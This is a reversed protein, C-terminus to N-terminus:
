GRRRGAAVCAMAAVTALLIAAPEPVPAGTATSGTFGQQWLLLDAADTTGSADADGGDDVGYSSQWMALDAGDVDGDGDFDAPLAVSVLGEVVINDFVYAEGGDGTASFRLTLVDGLGTLLATLTQFVNSLEVADGDAPTMSLPDALTRPNGDALFYTATASEDVSSTFLPQEGADDFEYTWNFADPTVGGAEFDGMAAMDISVQLGSAGSVDFQWTASAEGTPNNDNKLNLVGFWADSKTTVDVIGLSDPENLSNDRLHSPIPAGSGVQFVGYGENVNDYAGSDAAPSQSFSILNQPADFDDGAVQTFVATGGGVSWNVPLTWLANAAGQSASSVTVLGSKFGATSTDLFVQHANAGGLAFATDMLGGGTLAGSVTITYDLEDAGNSVLVDAINQVMVDLAIPAGVSIMSPVSGLTVDMVAPLQYDAVVPLHDSVTMLANLVAPSAGGSSTIPSNCCAHSGDNGFARYSGPIYDLGEGDLFEGTVLQFDFRDDMGGLTQGSYQSSTAPSQTHTYRLSSNDHWSGPANIPDFAQGPGASLLHQYMDESSTQINYDGAYIAHTGEGLADSNTRVNTAEILRRAANESGTDSKYHDNYVYFDAAADYGVPRLQYRMTSRAQASGNVSGSRQEGLLEVTQTNYVLAPGGGAGEPHSTAANLSSRAYVGAGYIGNLVDVVSQTSISTTYQEQLMLVDIPKAIGGVVEAGIASLVLDMGSRATQTGDVQGTGTNYSVIRLQARAPAAHCTWVVALLFMLRRSIM